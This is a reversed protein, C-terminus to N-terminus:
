TAGTLVLVVWGVNGQADKLPAWHSVMKKMKSGFLVSNLLEAGRDLTDSLRPSRGQGPGGGEVHHYVGGKMNRWQTQTERDTVSHIGVRHGKKMIAAAADRIRSGSGSRTHKSVRGAATTPRKNKDFSSSSLSSSHPSTTVDINTLIDLSLAQGSAIKDLVSSRFSRNISPSNAREALISFIDQNLVQEKAAGDTEETRGTSKRTTINTMNIGGSASNLGLLELASSSCFAVPMHVHPTNSGTSSSSATSTSTTPRPIYRMVFFRSYPTSSEATQQVLQPERPSYARRKALPTGETDDTPTVIQSLEPAQTRGSFRRFFRDRFPRQRVDHGAGFESEADFKSSSPSTCVPREQTDSVPFPLSEEGPAGFNLVRLIDKCGTGMSESVNIQGGLWYRVRGREILPCMFLLNWFPSGDKRYNVILETTEHGMLVAERIRYSAEPDPSFGQLFRCNRNIMERRSYGTMKLLGDSAYLIPNDPKHPDTLCFADGLGPYSSRFGGTLSRSVSLSRRMCQALQYKLFEPYLTKGLREEVSVKADRYLRELQPLAMRACTRTSAQLLNSMNSPLELPAAANPGTFEESIQGVLSTMNKLANTYENVKFLFELDAAWRTGKAFQLLRQRTHAHTFAAQIIDRDFFNPIPKVQKPPSTFDIQISTRMSICDSTNASDFSLPRKKGGSTKLSGNSNYDTYQRFATQNAHLALGSDSRLRSHTRVPKRNQSGHGAPAPPPSLGTTNLDSARASFRYPHLFTSNSQASGRRSWDDSLTSFSEWTNRNVSHM